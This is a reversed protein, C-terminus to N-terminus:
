ASVKEPLLVVPGAALMALYLAMAAALRQSWWSFSRTLSGGHRGDELAHLFRQESRDADGVPKICTPLASSLKASDLTRSCFRDVSTPKVMSFISKISCVMGRM